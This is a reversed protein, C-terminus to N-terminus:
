RFVSSFEPPLLQPGPWGGHYSPLVVWSWEQGRGPTHCVLTNFLTYIKNEMGLCRIEKLTIHTLLRPDVLKM